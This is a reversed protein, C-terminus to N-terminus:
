KAKEGALAGDLGEFQEQREMSAAVSGDVMATSEATLPLGVVMEEEHEVGFQEGAPPVPELVGPVPAIVDLRCHVGM